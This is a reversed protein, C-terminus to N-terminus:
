MGHDPGSVDGDDVVALGVRFERQDNGRIQGFEGDDCPRIDNQGARGPRKEVKFAVPLEEEACQGNETTDVPVQTMDIDIPPLGTVSSGALFTNIFTFAKPLGTGEALNMPPHSNSM